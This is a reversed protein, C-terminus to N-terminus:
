SVMLTSGNWTILGYNSPIAEIIVNGNMLKDATQLVQQNESPIVTYEGEYAKHSDYAIVQVASGDIMSTLACDGDLM